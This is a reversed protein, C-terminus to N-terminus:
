AKVISTHNTLFMGKTVGWSHSNQLFGALINYVCASYPRILTRTAIFFFNTLLSLFPISITTFIDQKLFLGKFSPVTTCAQLGLVLSASACAPLYRIKRCGQDGYHTRPWCHIFLSARDWFSLCLAPHPPIPSLPSEPSIWKLFSFLLFWQATAGTRHPDCKSDM